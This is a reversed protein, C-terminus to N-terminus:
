RSTRIFTITLDITHADPDAVTKFSAALGNLSQLATNNKLFSTVYSENYTDGPHMTWGRDFDKKQADTLNLPTVSKLTYTTGPIAAVTFAVTHAATDLAPSATIAADVYGYARYATELNRLSELLAKRSAIDGPHVKSATNFQLTTMIPSGPWDLASVHYLDGATVTATVDVDVRSATSSAITHTLGTLSAAQYGADRYPALLLDTLSGPTASENYQSGSLAHIAKDTAAAFPPTVGTLTVSHVRIAPSDVRYVALRLPQSASPAIVEEAVKAAINKAALMQQLAAAIADQQNGAEPVTGNFLPVRKQLEAALESPEYWVFNEFGVTLIRAPDAPTVSFIVSLGKVPGDLMSQLDGFAGTDVLRQAAAQLDEKTITDGIRLGSAAELAAQSYPVTGKFVLKKVTYRQTDAANSTRCVTLCLFACTLCFTKLITM